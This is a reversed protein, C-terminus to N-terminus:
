VLLFIVVAIIAVIIFIIIGLPITIEGTSTKRMSTDIIKLSSDEVLKVLIGKDVLAYLVITKNEPMNIKQVIKGPLPSVIGDEDIAKLSTLINRSTQDKDSIVLLIEDGIQINTIFKGKVPAIVANGELVFEAQKEINKMVNEIESEKRTQEPSPPQEFPISEKSMALSSVQEISLNCSVQQNGLVRQLIVKGDNELQHINGSKVDPFLNAKFIESVIKDNIEPINVVNDDKKLTNLERLVTMWDSTIDIQEYIMSTKLIASDIFPIYNNATNFFILILGSQMSDKMLFAGKLVACDFYEGAVMAIAKESNGGTAKMAVDLEFYGNEDITVM